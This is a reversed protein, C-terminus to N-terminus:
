LKFSKFFNDKSTFFYHNFYVKVSKAVKINRFYLNLKGDANNSCSFLAFDGGANRDNANGGANRDNANGGANRDNANGGANRDNANGGANRDNANGGANRDN